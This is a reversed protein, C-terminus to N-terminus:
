PGLVQQITSVLEQANIPKTFYADIGQKRASEADIVYSFGTCLIIPIDPRCHRLERALAEGTMQPMTQDTVVLDFSTPDAAFAAPAEQSSTYPKVEYGYQMLLTKMGRALLPEDDVFMICSAGPRDSAQTPTQAAISTQISPFFLTFTAGRGPTSEVTIAGRHSAVLGHVMSPGMGTGDAVGKTTFFPDFIRAMVEPTMGHGSDRITLRVHPGPELAPHSRTFADDLEVREVHLELAGGTERM